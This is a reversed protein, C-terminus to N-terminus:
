HHQYWYCCSSITFAGSLHLKKREWYFVVTIISNQQLTFDDQVLFFVDRNSCMKIQLGTSLFLSSSTASLPNEKWLFTLFTGFICCSHNALGKHLRLSAILGALALVFIRYQVWLPSKIFFFLLCQSTKYPLPFLFKHTCKHTHM